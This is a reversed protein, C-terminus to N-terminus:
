KRRRRAALGALALLSLTATTPEPIYDVNYLGNGAGMYAGYFGVNDVGNGVVTVGGAGVLTVGVLVDGSVLSRISDWDGEGYIGVVNYLLANDAIAAGNADVMNMTLIDNEVSYGSGDLTIFVDLSNLASPTFNMKLINDTVSLSTIYERNGITYSAGTWTGVNNVELTGGTVSVLTWSNASDFSIGEAIKINNADLTISGTVNLTAEKGFTINGAVSLKSTTVPAEGETTESATVTMTSGDAIALENVKVEKSFTTIKGKNDVKLNITGANDTGQGQLIAANVSTANGSFVVQQTSETNKLTGKWGSIDGAFELYHDSKHTKVIDGTGSVTGSFKSKMANYSYSYGNNINLASVTDSYNALVIDATIATGGLYGNVGSLSVKGDTTTDLANLSSLDGISYETGAAARTVAVTGQWSDSFNVAGKDTSAGLNYTGTGDLTVTGGSITGIKNLTAKSALVITNGSADAILTNITSTGVVSDSGLTLNVSEGLALTGQANLTAISSNRDGEAAGGAITMTVGSNVTVTSNNNGTTVKTFEQNATLKLKAANDACGITVYQIDNAANSLVLTGHNNKGTTGVNLYDATVVGALTTESSNRFVFDNGIINIDQQVTLNGSTWHEGNQLELTADEGLTFRSLDMYGSMVALTGHFDNGLQVGRDHGSTGLTVEVRGTGVVEKVLDNTQTDAFKLTGTEAVAFAAANATGETPTNGGVTVTDNAAVFFASTNAKYTGDSELATTVGNYVFSTLGTAANGSVLTYTAGMLLIGSNEQTYDVDDLEFDFGDLSTVVLKGSEGVSITGNNTITKSISFDTNINLTGNNTLSSELAVSGAGVVTLIAGNSINQNAVNQITFVANSDVSWTQTGAITLTNGYLDLTFNRGISTYGADGGAKGLTMSRSSNINAKLLNVSSDTTVIIGSWKVGNIDYYTDNNDGVTSNADLMFTYYDDGTVFTKWHNGDNNPTAAQEAVSLVGNTCTVLHYPAYCVGNLKNTTTGGTWQVIDYAYDADNYVSYDAARLNSAFCAAVMAILLLKPLHLKM